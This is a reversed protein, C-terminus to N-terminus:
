ASISHAQTVLMMEIRGAERTSESLEANEFIATDPCHIPLGEM